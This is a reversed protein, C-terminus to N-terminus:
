NNKKSKLHSSDDTSDEGTSNLISRVHRGLGYIVFTHINPPPPAYNEPPMSM